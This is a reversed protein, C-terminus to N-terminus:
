SSHLRPFAALPYLIFCLTPWLGCASRGKFRKLQGFALDEKLSGKELLVKNWEGVEPFWFGMTLRIGNQNHTRSVIQFVYKLFYYSFIKFNLFNL